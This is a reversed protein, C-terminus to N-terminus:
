RSRRPIRHVLFPDLTDIAEEPQTRHNWRFMSITIAEPTFDILTFGNEHRGLRSKM